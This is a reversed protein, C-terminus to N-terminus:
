TGPVVARGRSVVDVAYVFYLTHAVGGLIVNLSLLLYLGSERTLYIGLHNRDEDSLGPPLFM